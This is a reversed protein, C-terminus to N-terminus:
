RHGYPPNSTFSFKIYTNIVVVGKPKNLEIVLQKVDIRNCPPLLFATNKNNM